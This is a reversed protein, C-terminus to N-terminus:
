SNIERAQIKYVLSHSPYEKRCNELAEWLAPKLKSSRAECQQRAGRYTRYGKLNGVPNLQCDFIFYRTQM